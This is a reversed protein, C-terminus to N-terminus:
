SSSYRNVALGLVEINVLPKKTSNFHRNIESMVISRSTLIIHSYPLPSKLPDTLLNVLFSSHRLERPFEDYGDLILLTDAGRIAKMRQVVREMQGASEFLEMLQKLGFSSLEQVLLVLDRLKVKVVLKYCFTAVRGVQAM